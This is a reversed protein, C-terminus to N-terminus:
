VVHGGADFCVFKGDLVYIFLHCPERRVVGAKLQGVFLNVLVGCVFLCIRESPDKFM